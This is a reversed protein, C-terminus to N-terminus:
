CSLLSLGEDYDVRILDVTQFYCKGTLGRQQGPALQQGQSPNPAFVNMLFYLLHTLRVKQM